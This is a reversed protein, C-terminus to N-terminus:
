AMSGCGIKLVWYLIVWEDVGTNELHIRNELNKWSVGKHM